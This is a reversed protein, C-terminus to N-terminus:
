ILDPYAVGWGGGEGTSACPTGPRAPHLNHLGPNSTVSLPELLSPIRDERTHKSSARSTTWPAQQKGQTLLSRRPQLEQQLKRAKRKNGLVKLHSRSNTVDKYM